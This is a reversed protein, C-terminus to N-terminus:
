GAEAIDILVLDQRLICGSCLTMHGTESNGMQGKLRVLVPLPRLSRRSHIACAISMCYQSALCQCCFIPLQASDVPSFGSV